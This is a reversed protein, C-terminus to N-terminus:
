SEEVSWLSRTAALDAQFQTIPVIQTPMVNGGHRDGWKLVLLLDPTLPGPAFPGTGIRWCALRNSGVAGRHFPPLRKPILHPLFYRWNESVSLGSGDLIVNLQDDLNVDANPDPPVRVGLEKSSSGVVPLGDNARKM